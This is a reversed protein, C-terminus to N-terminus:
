KRILRHCNFCLYYIKGKNIAIMIEEAKKPYIEHHIQLHEKSKCRKCEKKLEKYHYLEKLMKYEHKGKVISLTKRRSHFKDKDRYYTRLILENFRKRKTTIFKKFGKKRWEKVKEPHLLQYEKIKRIREAKHKQYDKRCNERNRERLQKNM